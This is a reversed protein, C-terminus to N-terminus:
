YNPLEQQLSDHENCQMMSMLYLLVDYYRVEGSPVPTNWLEEVFAKSIPAVM